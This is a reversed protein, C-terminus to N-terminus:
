AIDIVIKISASRDEVANQAAQATELTFRRPDLVPRLHGADVMGGIERLIDGHHARGEGALMPRLVFVGSLTACCLSAAGFAVTGFATCSTVHGYAKVAKFAIDLAPGGATDYVIDFGRGHTLRAVYSEPQEATYDIPTAGLEAPFQYAACLPSVRQTSGVRGSM